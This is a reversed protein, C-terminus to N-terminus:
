DEVVIVVNRQNIAILLLKIIHWGVNKVFMVNIWKKHEVPYKITITTPDVRKISFEGIELYSSGFLKIDQDLQRSINDSAEKIRNDIKNM